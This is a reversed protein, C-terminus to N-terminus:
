GRRERIRAERVYSVVRLVFLAAHLEHRNQQQWWTYWISTSWAAQQSNDKSCEICLGKLMWYLSCSVTQCLHSFLSRRSGFSTRTTRCCCAWCSQMSGFELILTALRTIGTTPSCQHCDLSISPHSICSVATTLNCLRTLLYTHASLSLPTYSEANRGYAGKSSSMPPSARQSKQTTQVSTLRTATRSRSTWYAIRLLGVKVIWCQTLRHRRSPLTQWGVAATPERVREEGTKDLFRATRAAETHPQLMRWIYHLPPVVTLARTRAHPHFFFLAHVRSQASLRKLIVFNINPM